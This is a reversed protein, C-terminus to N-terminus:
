CPKCRRISARVRSRRLQGNADGGSFDDVGLVFGAFDALQDDRAGILGNKMRQFGHLLLVNRLNGDEFLIQGDARDVFVLNESHRQLTLVQAFEDDAFDHALRKRANGAVRGDLADGVNEAVFIGGDEDFHVACSEFDERLVIQHAGDGRQDLLLSLHPSAATAGTTGLM